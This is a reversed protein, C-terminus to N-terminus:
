ECLITLMHSEYAELSNPPQTTRREAEGNARPGTTIELSSPLTMVEHPLALTATPMSGDARDNSRSEEHPTPVVFAPMYSLVKIFAMSLPTETGLARCMLEAQQHHAGHQM